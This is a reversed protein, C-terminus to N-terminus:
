KLSLFSYSYLLIKRIYSYILQKTKSTKSNTLAQQFSFKKLYELMLPERCVKIWTQVLFRVFSKGPGLLM